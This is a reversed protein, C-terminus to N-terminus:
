NKYIKNETTLYMKKINISGKQTYNFRSYSLRLEGFHM